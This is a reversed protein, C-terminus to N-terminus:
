PSAQIFFMVADWKSPGLLESGGLRSPTFLDRRRPMIVVETALAELERFWSQGPWYPAVVTAAAGEERLKHAVEDLLAWPPNM